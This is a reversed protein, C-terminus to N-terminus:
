LYVIKINDLYAAASELDAPLESRFLLKFEGGGTETTYPTLNIYVKGWEDNRNFGLIFFDQEIGQSMFTIGMLLRASSKYNVEAFVPRGGGPLNYFDITRATLTTASTDVFMKGSADGEFITDGTGSIREIGTFANGGEFNENLTFVTASRYEFELPITDTEGPTLDLQMTISQFFPNVARTSSLGNLKIGATIEIKTSGDAIVPVQSPLEYVGLLNDDVYVWADTISHSASGQGSVTTLNAENLYLYAPIEGSSNPRCSSFFVLLVFVFCIRTNLMVKDIKFGSNKELIYM